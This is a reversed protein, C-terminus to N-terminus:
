PFKNAGADSERSRLALVAGLLQDVFLVVASLVIGMLWEGVLFLTCAVALAVLRLAVRSGQVVPHEDM